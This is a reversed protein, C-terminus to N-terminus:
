LPIPIWGEETGTLARASFCWIIAKKGELYGPEARVRRRLNLRTENAGGGRTSLVDVPFGLDFALQHPLASQSGKWWVTNSDGM